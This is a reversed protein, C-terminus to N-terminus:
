AEDNCVACFWEDPPISALGLCSLHFAKPCGDCLLMDMDDAKHCIACAEDHQSVEDESQEDSSGEEALPVATISPSCVSQDNCASTHGFCDLQIATPCTRAHIEGVSCCHQM